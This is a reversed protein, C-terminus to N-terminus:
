KPTVGISSECAVYTGGVLTQTQITYPLKNPQAFTLSGTFGATTWTTVALTSSTGIFSPVKCPAPPPPPPPAVYSVTVDITAAACDGPQSGDSTTALLVIKPDTLADQTPTFSGTFGAATWESRATAVDVGTLNPVIIGCPGPTATPATAVTLSSAFFAEGSPCADADAPASIALPAVVTLTDSGTPPSFSGTFGAATWALRAGAVSLGVLPPITRCNSTPPPPTAAPTTGCDDICGSTIPFTSSASVTVFKGVINGILPTLVSFQCSLSVSVPEGPDKTIGFSPDPVPTVVPCNPDAVSALILSEYTAQETANGPWADPHLAAYNAGVRAMNQLSVYGLFLRGFDVAGLVLLLLIPVLLTFEVLSQGRSRDRRHVRFM